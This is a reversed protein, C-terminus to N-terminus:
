SIGYRCQIAIYLVIPREPFSINSYKVNVSGSELCARRPKSQVIQDPAESFIDFIVLLYVFRCISLLSSPYRNRRARSRLRWRGPAGDSTFRDLVYTTLREVDEFKFFRPM